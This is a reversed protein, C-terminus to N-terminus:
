GRSGRLNQYDPAGARTEQGKSYERPSASGMFWDGRSHCPFEEAKESKERETGGKQKKQM